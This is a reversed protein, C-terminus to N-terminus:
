LTRLRRRAAYRVPQRHDLVDGVNSINGRVADNASWNLTSSQGCNIQTSSATFGGITVPAVVVTASAIGAKFRPLPSKKM